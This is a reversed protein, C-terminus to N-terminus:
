GALPAAPEQPRGARGDPDGEMFNFQEVNWRGPHDGVQDDCAGRTAVGALTPVARVSATVTMSM